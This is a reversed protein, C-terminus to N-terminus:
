IAKRRRARTFLMVSAGLALAGLVILLLEFSNLAIGGAAQAGAQVFQVAPQVSAQVSATANAQVSPTVSATANGITQNVAEAIGSAGAEMPLMPEPTPALAQFVPSATAVVQEGVAKAVSATAKAIEEVGRVSLVSAGQSQEPAFASQAFAAKPSFLDFLIRSFGAAIVLISTGLLVWIKKTSEPQLLARGKGTLEYYVWKHPPAEERSVRAVLGAARMKELHESAAQVSIGLSVSLESATAQREGLKKLIHVRTESALAKFSNLDLTIKEDLEDILKQNKKKHV